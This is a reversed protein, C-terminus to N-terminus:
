GQLPLGSPDMEESPNATWQDVTISNKFERDEGCNLCSGLSVPGNAPEIMWHHCCQDQQPETTSVPTSQEQLVM